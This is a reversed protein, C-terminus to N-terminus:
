DAVDRVVATRTGPNNDDMAFVGNKLDLRAPHNDPSTLWASDFRRTELRELVEDNSDGWPRM